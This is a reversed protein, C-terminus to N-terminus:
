GAGLVAIGVGRERAEWTWDAVLDLQNWTRYCIKEKKREKKKKEKKKSKLAAGEAYPPAWAIPRIPARAAPRCWLWPMAPDLSRRCGVGCSM